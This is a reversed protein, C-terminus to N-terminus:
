EGKINKLEKTLFKKDVEVLDAGVHDVAEKWADIAEPHYRGMDKGDLSYSYSARGIKRFVEVIFENDKCRYIGKGARTINGVLVFAKEKNIM